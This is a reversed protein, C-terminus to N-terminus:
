VEDSDDEYRECTVADDVIQPRCQCPYNGCSRCLELLFRMADESVRREAIAVAEITDPHVPYKRRRKLKDKVGKLRSACGVLMLFEKRREAPIKGNHKM